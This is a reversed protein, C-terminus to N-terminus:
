ACSRKSTRNSHHHVFTIRIFYKEFSAPLLKNSFHHMFKATKLKYLDNIKLIQLRRCIPTIRILRDKNPLLACLKTKRLDYLILTLNILSAGSLFVM